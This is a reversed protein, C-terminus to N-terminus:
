VTQLETAETPVYEAKALAATVADQIEAEMCSWETSLMVRQLAARMDKSAAMVYADAPRMISEAIMAGSGYHREDNHGTGIAGPIKVTTRIEGHSHASWEGGTPEPANLAALNEARQRERNEREIRDAMEAAERLERARAEEDARRKAEAEAAARRREAEIEAQARAIEAREAAMQRDHEAREARLKEEAQRQEERRATEEAERALRDRAEREAREAAAARDRAEQEARLRALELLEAKIRAEDAERQRAKNAMDRLAAVAVDRAAEAEGTLEMYFDLEIPQRALDDAHEDIAASSTAPCGGPARRFDEIAARIRAVRTAEAEAKARKEAAIREDWEDRLVLLRQEEPEIIAVLADEEAIVAKSFKTADDRAEKGTKRIDTRRTRLTMAASHCEDRAAANKIEIIAKSQEVLETLKKKNEVSGLAKAAREIVTLAKQEM